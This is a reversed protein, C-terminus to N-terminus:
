IYDIFWEPTERNTYGSLKLKEYIYYDRYAKVPDTNKYKDPMALAPFTMPGAPLKPLNNVMWVLHKQCAHEKLTEESSYRHTYEECYELGLLLLWRFNEFRERAWVSCPHNKHTLRYVEYPCSKLLEENTLHYVSYLLQTSELIMKIVHKDIAYQAALRPDWSLFFINM